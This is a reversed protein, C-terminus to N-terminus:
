NSLLKASAPRSATTNSSQGRAIATQKRIEAALHEDLDRQSFVWRKGIKAAPIRGTDALVRVTYASAKLFQAAEHVDLTKM